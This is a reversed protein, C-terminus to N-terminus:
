SVKAVDCTLFDMLVKATSNIIKITAEKNHVSLAKEGAELITVNEMVLEKLKSTDGLFNRRLDQLTTNIFKISEMLTADSGRVFSLGLPFTRMSILKIDKFIVNRPLTFDPRRLFSDPRLSETTEDSDYASDYDDHEFDWLRLHPYLQEPRSQSSFWGSERKRFRKPKLDHELRESILHLKSANVVQLDSFSLQTKGGEHKIELVVEDCNKITLVKMNM